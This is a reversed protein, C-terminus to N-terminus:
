RRKEKLEMLYKDLQDLRREWIDRQQALWNEALKLRKPVLEYTRVRGVKKSRVLGSDELVALHQVFSPLAMDFPTALESVSAPRRSLRELVHRRTPDSLARFVSDIPAITNPM